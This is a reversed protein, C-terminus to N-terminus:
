PAETNSPAGGSLLAECKERVAAPLANDGALWRWVTRPERVLVERAFARVSLGSAKITASLLEVDTM